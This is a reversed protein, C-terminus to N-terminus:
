SGSAPITLTATTVASNRYRSAARITVTQASAAAAAPATYLGNQDISGPGSAISWVVSNNMYWGVSYLQLTSGAAVSTRQQTDIAVHPISSDPVIELGNLLPLPHYASQSDPLNVRVAVYLSSDTVQAPIYADTPTAYLYSTPIGYDYNHAGIQGNAELFLPAHAHSNFTAGMCAQCGNYPEGFLLRVKYNGNPVVLSYVLDNGYTYGSSQYIKIEPNSRAAWDPYDSPLQIYAGTEFAQDGLWTNGSADTMGFPNGTDIRISGTPNRGNPLVTVYLDAFADPDTTSAVQLVAQSPSSISAPPTYASGTVSGVGSVLSWTTNEDLSNVWSTLQYNVTGALIYLTPSPLGVNLSELAIPINATNNPNARDTATLVVYRNPTEFGNAPNVQSSSNNVIFSSEDVAEFDQVPIGKSIIENIAASAVPDESVDTDVVITPGSNYSADTLFMGYQKLATLVAQAEASFTSTDFGAKLRFRAGYPPSNVCSRCGNGSNAPWYAAAHISKPDIVFRMVHNVSRAKIEALHLVTPAYPLGAADTAGGTPLSYTSWAYSLGSTATCGPSGDRCVRPSFYNNYIEYFQCDDRDVTVIHHDSGNKDTVFTGGQRKLAPWQPMVFPGNNATTYYFRENVIPTNHDAVNTGFDISATLPRTGMNAIWTSSHAEVPLHDVRTNFVSDNPTTQCGGVVNQPSVLAPAVYTATTSASSTITGSSGSALSWTVPRNATFTLAQGQLVAGTSPSIVLGGSTQAASLLSGVLLSGSLLLSCNMPFAGTNRIRFGRRRPGGTIQLQLHSGIVLLSRNQPWESRNNLM